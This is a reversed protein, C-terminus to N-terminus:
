LIHGKGGMVMPLVLTQIRDEDKIGAISIHNLNECKFSNTRSELETGEILFPYSSDMIFSHLYQPLIKMPRFSNLSLHKYVKSLTSFRTKKFAPSTLHQYSLM